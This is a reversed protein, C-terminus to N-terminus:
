LEKVGSISLWKDSSRVCVESPVWKGNMRVYAFTAFIWVAYLIGPMVESEGQVIINNGLEDTSWGKLKYRNREVEKFQGYAQGELPLVAVPSFQTPTESKEVKIKIKYDNFKFHNGKDAALSNQWLWIHITDVTTSGNYGDLTEGVMNATIEITSSIERYGDIDVPLINDKYCGQDPFGGGTDIRTTQNRIDFPMCGCYTEGYDANWINTGNINHNYSGSVYTLTITYKEGEKFTLGELTCINIHKGQNQEGSFTLIGEEDMTIKVGTNTADDVDGRGAYIPRDEANYVFMNPNIGSHNVDLFVNARWVAYLIQGVNETYNAGANYLKEGNKSDSWGSFTYGIRKPIVSSLTLDKDHTKIQDQPEGSGGNADYSVTYTDASKQWVAYLNVTATTLSCNSNIWSNTVPSYVSYMKQTAQSDSSWGLLTYGTRDWGGFQGTQTWQPTGDTKYGFRNGSIGYTFKQSSKSGSGDNKNFVVTISKASISTLTVTGGQSESSYASGSSGAKTKWYASVSIKAEGLADYAVNVTKKFLETNSNYTLYNSSISAFTHSYPTGAIVCYVTGSRKTTYGTNTRYFLVSVTVPRKRGDLTGETIKIRYKIYQNNTDYGGTKSPLYFTAM